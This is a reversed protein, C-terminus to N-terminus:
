LDARTRECCCPVTCVQNSLGLHEALRALLSIALRGKELFGKNVGDVMNPDAQKDEGTEGEEEEV